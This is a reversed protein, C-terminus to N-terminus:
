NISGFTLTVSPDPQREGKILQLNTFKGTSMAVLTFGHAELSKVFAQLDSFRSSAEWIHLQGDLRLVRYAERIYDTFNV